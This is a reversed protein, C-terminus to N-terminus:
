PMGLRRRMHDEGLRVLNGELDPNAKLAKSADALREAVFSAQRDVDPEGIPTQNLYAAWVRPDIFRSMGEFRLGIAWHGRDASIQIEAESRDADSVPGKITLLLGGMDGRVDEIVVFGESLLLDYLDDVISPTDSMGLSM